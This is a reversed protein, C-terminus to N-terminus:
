ILSLINIKQLVQKVFLPDDAIIGDVKFKWARSVDAETKISYVYVLFNNKHANEVVESQLQHKNCIFIDANYKKCLQSPSHRFNTIPNFIIGTTIHPSLDKLLKMKHHNFSTVIVRDVLNFKLIIDVLKNEATKLSSSEVNSKLEINLIISQPLWKILKELPVIKENKFKNSFWEGNKLSRIESFLKSYIKGDGNTTRNLKEDHIIVFKNDKSLRIDCEIMDVKANAAAEFAAMTNEPAIQSYGRHAIILPNQPTGLKTLKM